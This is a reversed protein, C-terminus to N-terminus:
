LGCPLVSFINFVGSEPSQLLLTFVVVSKGADFRDRCLCVFLLYFLNEMRKTTWLINRKGGGLLGLKKTFYFFFNIIVIIIIILLLLLLLFLLNQNM